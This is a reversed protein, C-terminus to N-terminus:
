GFLIGNIYYHMLSPLSVEPLLNSLYRCFSLGIATMKITVGSTQQFATLYQSFELALPIFFIGSNPLAFLLLAWCCTTHNVSGCLIYGHRSLSFVTCAICRNRMRTPLPTSEYGSIQLEKM